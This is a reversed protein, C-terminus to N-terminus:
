ENENEETKETLNKKKYLENRQLYYGLLYTESLPKQLQEDSFSSLNEYIEGIIKEYHTRLEVPLRPYCYPKVKELIYKAAYAPRRVFLPQCLLATTERNKDANRLVSAEISELVALLRGFQYSRDKKDKELSMTSEEKYKDFRYKRTVACATFLLKERITKTHRALSDTNHFVARMIDVPFNGRELRCFILQNVTKKKSFDDISLSPEAKGKETREVGFACIAIDYISPSFVGDRTPWCCKEDWSALRDLFDDGRFENYYNVSLRGKNADFCAVVVDKEANLSNKKKNLVEYLQRKYDSPESTSESMSMFPLDIRPVEIGDPNWAVFVKQNKSLEKKGDSKDDHSTRTEGVSIGQNVCLWRLALHAKQSQIQGMEFAEASNLFRGRYTFNNTDNSSIIKGNPFIPVINKPANKTCGTMEGTVMCLSKEANEPRSLYYEIYLRQLETDRWVENPLGCGLVSWCIIKKDDSDKDNVTRLGSDLLDKAINGNKVYNLVAKLKPHSYESNVRDELQKVYSMYKNNEGPTDDRCLYKFNDCLCHPATGSTRGASKETVPILISENFNIASLFKGDADLTILISAKVPLHFIPALTETNEHEIGIRAAMKDYTEIAKQMLSM